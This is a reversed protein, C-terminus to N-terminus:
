HFSPCSICRNKKSPTKNIWYKIGIALGISEAQIHNLSVSLDFYKSLYYNYEIEGSLWNLKYQWDSSTNYIPEDIYGAIDAWTKRYNLGPGIAFYLSHKFSKVIRFKIMIQTKGAFHMAKDIMFLQTVKLATTSSAYGEYSLLVGPELALQGNQSLKLKIIDPQTETFQYSLSTFKISVNNQAQLYIGSQLFLTFIILRINKTKM